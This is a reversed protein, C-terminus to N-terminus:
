CMGSRVFRASWCLHTLSMQRSVRRPLWNVLKSLKRTDKPVWLVITGDQLSIRWIGLLNGMDSLCWRTNAPLRSQQFAVLVLFFFLYRRYTCIGSLCMGLFLMVSRKGGITPPRWPWLFRPVHCPWCPLHIYQLPLAGDSTLALEFSTAAQFKSFSM